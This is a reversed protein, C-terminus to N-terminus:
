KGCCVQNIAECTGALQKTGLDRECVAPFTVDNPDSECSGGLSACSAKVAHLAQVDNGKLIDLNGDTSINFLYNRPPGHDPTLFLQRPVTRWKGTEPVNCPAVICVTQPSAVTNIM